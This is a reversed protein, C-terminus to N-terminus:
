DRGPDSHQKGRALWDLPALARLWARLPRAPTGGLRAGAPTDRIVGSQAFIRAAAGIRLHGALGAQEGVVVFDGLQTSGALNAQPLIVCYRGIVVDPAIQALNGIRAGEGIVTDRTGGRDITANAGIEANDQVIVRGVHPASRPGQRPM